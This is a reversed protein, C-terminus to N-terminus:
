ASTVQYTSVALHEGEGMIALLIAQDQKTKTSNSYFTHTIKKKSPKRKKGVASVVVPEDIGYFINMNNKKKNIM